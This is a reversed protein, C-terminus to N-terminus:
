AAPGEQEPARCFVLEAARVSCQTGILDSTGCVLAILRRRRSRACPFCHVGGSHAANRVCLHKREHLM